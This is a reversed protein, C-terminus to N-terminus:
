KVQTTMMFDLLCDRYNPPIYSLKIPAHELGAMRQTIRILSRLVSSTIGREDMVKIVQQKFEDYGDDLYELVLSSQLRFHTKILRAVKEALLEFDKDEM